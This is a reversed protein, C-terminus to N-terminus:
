ICSPKWTTGKQLKKGHHNRLVEVHIRCNAGLKETTQSASARMILDTREAKTHTTVRYELAGTSAWVGGVTFATGNILSTVGGLRGTVPLAPEPLAVSVIRPAFKECFATTFRVKEPVVTMWAVDVVTLEVPEAMVACNVPFTGDAGATKPTVTVLGLPVAGM